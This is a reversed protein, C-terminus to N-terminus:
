LLMMLSLSVGMDLHMIWAGLSVAPWNLSGDCWVGSMKFVVLLLVVGGRCAPVGCPLLVVCVIGVLVSWGSGWGWRLRLRLM